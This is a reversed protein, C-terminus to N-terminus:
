DSPPQKQCATGYPTAVGSMQADPIAARISSAENRYKKAETTKGLAELAKAYREYAFAVGLPYKSLLVEKEILPMLQSFYSAAQETKGQKETLLGLELLSLYPSHIQQESFQKSRLLYKEAEDWFSTPLM